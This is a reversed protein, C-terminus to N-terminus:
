AKKRLMLLALVIFGIIIIVIIGATAPVFYMDAVSTPTNTPTVVSPPHFLMTTQASSSFYSNSGGFTATITYTGPITPTFTYSYQGNIDSTTTGMTYTNGNPDTYSLTVPVGTANMPEPQQQYLYETWQTMSADSIAPTGAAPIGLCTEGPSQDTVSGSVLVQAPDNMGLAATVNTATPGQGFCYLSNDYGNLAVMYGDSFAPFQWWGNNTWIPAGTTENLDVIFEGQYMPDGVHSHDGTTAYLQGDICTMQTSGALGGFPYTGYPTNFGAYPGMWTWLLTGTNVNYANIDGDYSSTFMIGLSPDINNLMEYVGWASTENAPPTITWLQAGTYINIGYWTQTGLYAETFVGDAMAGMGRTTSSVTALPGTENETWLMTGTTANYGALIGAPSTTVGIALSYTILVDDPYDVHEIAQGPINLTTVNWQIGQSWNLTQGRYSDPRWYQANASVTSPAPIAQSSNWMALWNNGVFYLLLSGDPGYAPSGGSPAPALQLIEDGTYADYMTYTGAGVAWLYSLVGLQNDTVYNYDQGLNITNPLNTLAPTTSTAPSITNAATYNQYWEQQGTRLNVCYFGERPVEPSTYYLNGSIIIPTLMQEYSEGTYYNSQGLSGGVIGGFWIQKTWDIHSTTPSTGDPQYRLAPNATSTETNSNPGCPELWDGMISAWVRNQANVPNSWYATPLPINAYGAIPAQQVTMTVVSSVSPEYYCASYGNATSPWVTAGESTGNIWQGPYNLVLSYNGVQTPTYYLYVNSIPDAPGFTHTTNTGDPATITIVYGSFRTGFLGNVDFAIQTLFGVIEVQQNVGIPNPAVAIWANTPQSVVVPNAATGVAKTAPAIAMIASFALILILAISPLTKNGRIKLKNVLLSKSM